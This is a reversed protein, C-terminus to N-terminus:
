AERGRFYASLLTSIEKAVEVAARREADQEAILTSYPARRVNYSAVRRVRNRYLLADDKRDRLEFRADLRLNYRTITSDLQIALADSSQRLAVVLRYRPDARSDAARLVDLLENRMIQGLRDRPTEVAIAELETRVAAGDDGGYMPRFGCGALALVAAAAVVLARRPESSSM